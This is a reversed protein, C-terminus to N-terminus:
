ELRSFTAGVFAISVNLVAESAEDILKTIEPKNVVEKISEMHNFSIDLVESPHTAM